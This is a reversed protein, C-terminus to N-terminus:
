QLSWSYEELSGHPETNFAFKRAWNNIRNRQYACKKCFRSRGDKRLSFDGGCVPCVRKALNRSAMNNSRLTNERSSAPRLHDPNVCRRNECVFHDIELGQPIAGNKYEWSWRHAVTKRGKVMLRGYGNPLIEGCWIWCGTIPCHYTQLLFREEPTLRNNCLKNTKVM